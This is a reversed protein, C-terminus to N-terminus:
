IPEGHHFLGIEQTTDLRLGLTQCSYIYPTYGPRQLLFRANERNYDDTHRCTRDEGAAIYKQRDFLKVPYNLQVGGDVYVEDCEDMRVAQFFLPISMSIRVADLLSM